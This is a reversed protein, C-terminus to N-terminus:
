GSDVCLARKTTVTKETKTYCIELGTTRILLVMVSFRGDLLPTRHDRSGLGGSHRLGAVLRDGLTRNRARSLLKCYTM